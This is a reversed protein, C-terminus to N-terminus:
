HGLRAYRGRTRRAGVHMLGTNSHPQRGCEGGHQECFPGEVSGITRQVATAVACHGAVLPHQLVKALKLRQVHQM